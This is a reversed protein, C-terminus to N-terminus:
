KDPTPGLGVRRWQLHGDLPISLAVAYPLLQLSQPRPPSEAQSILSPCRNSVKDQNKGKHTSSFDQDENIIM